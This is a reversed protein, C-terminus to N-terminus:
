AFVPEVRALDIWLGALPAIETREFRARRSFLVLAVHLIELPVLGSPRLVTARLYTERAGAARAQGVDTASKAAGHRFGTTRSRHLSSRRQSTDLFPIRMFNVVIIRDNPRATPEEMARAPPPPAPPAAPPAPPAPPPDPLPPVAAPATPDPPVPEVTPEPLGPVVPMLLPVILPFPIPVLVLVLM